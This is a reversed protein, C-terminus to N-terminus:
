APPYFGSGDRSSRRNNERFRDLLDQVTAVSKLISAAQNMTSQFDIGRSRIFLRNAFRQSIGRAPAMAFAVVLAAAVHGFTRSEAAFLPRSATSVLWWVVAYLVLLYAALVAYSTVRRFFFGVDM